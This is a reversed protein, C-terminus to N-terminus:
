LSVFKLPEERFYRGLCLIDFCSYLVPHVTVNDGYILARGRRSGDNEIVRERDPPDALLFKRLMERIRAPYFM